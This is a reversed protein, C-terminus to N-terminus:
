AASSAAAAAASATFEPCFDWDDTTGWKSFGEYVYPLGPNSPDLRSLLQGNTMFLQGQGFGLGKEAVVSFPCVLCPHSPSSAPCAASRPRSAHSYFLTPPLCRPYPRLVDCSINHGPQFKQSYRRLKM